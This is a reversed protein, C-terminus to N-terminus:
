KATPVTLSARKGDTAAPLMLPQHEVYSKRTRLVDSIFAVGQSEDKLGVSRLLDLVQRNPNRMAAVVELPTLGNVDKASLAARVEILCRVTSEHGHQAALHL